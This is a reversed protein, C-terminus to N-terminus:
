ILKGANIRPNSGANVGKPRGDPNGSQNPKFGMCEEKNNISILLIM